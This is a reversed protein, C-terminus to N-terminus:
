EDGLLGGSGDGALKRLEDTIYAKVVELKENVARQLFKASTPPDHYAEVNEHVIAAYLPFGDKAYGVEGDVRGTDYVSVDVYGSDHLEGTRYPVLQQSRLFIIDLAETIIEETAGEANRIFDSLNKQIDEFQYKIAQAYYQENTYLDQGLFRPTRGVRFQVRKSM